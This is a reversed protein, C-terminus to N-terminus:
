GSGRCRGRIRQEGAGVASQYRHCHPSIGRRSHRSRVRGRHGEAFTGQIAGDDMEERRRRSGICAAFHAVAAMVFEGNAAHITVGVM